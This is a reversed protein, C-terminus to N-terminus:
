LARNFWAKIDGVAHGTKEQLSGFWEDQKGDEYTLDDDTLNDWKQKAQGKLENWNVRAKLETPDDPNNRNLGVVFDTLHFPFSIHAPLPQYNHKYPHAVPM